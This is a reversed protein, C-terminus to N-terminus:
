LPHLARFAEVVAVRCKNVFETMLQLVLIISNSANSSNAVLRIGQYCLVNLLTSIKLPSGKSTHTFTKIPSLLVLSRRTPVLSRGTPHSAKDFWTSCDSADNAYKRYERFNQSINLRHYWLVTKLASCHLSSPKISLKSWWVTSCSSM